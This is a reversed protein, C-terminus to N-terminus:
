QEVCACTATSYTYASGAQLWVASSGFSYEWLDDLYFPYTPYPTFGDSGITATGPGAGRANTHPYPFFTRYGGHLLLTNNYYLLVGGARQPPWFVLCRLNFRDAWEIGPNPFCTQIRPIEYWSNDVATDYLGVCHSMVFCFLERTSSPPSTGLSYRWLDDMYGGFPYQFTDAWKNEVSNTEGFGHWMRHGGYMYFVDNHRISAAKWRKGPGSRGLVSLETWQCAGPQDSRWKCDAINFRWVDSCFDECRQSFGGYVILTSRLSGSLSRECSGVPVAPPTRKGTTSYRRLTNGVSQLTPVVSWVMTSPVAALFPEQTSSKGGRRGAVSIRGGYVTQTKTSPFTLVLLECCFALATCHRVWHISGFTM